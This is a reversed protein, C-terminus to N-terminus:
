QGANGQPERRAELPSHRDGVRFRRAVTMGPLSRMRSAAVTEICALLRAERGDWSFQWAMGETEEVRVHLEGEGVRDIRLTPPPPEPRGLDRGSQEWKAHVEDRLMAM